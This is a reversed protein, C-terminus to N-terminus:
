MEWKINEKILTAPNGIFLSDENLLKKTITSNAGIIAGKPIESGKLILCRCGIWVNNGIKVPSAQNCIQESSDIIKHFDTDMILIDWSLLCNDGIEIRKEVVISSEATIIFNEGLILEANEGVSIKSGHGINAKGYFEMSGKLFLITRSVKEDFIGVDSFGIKILATEPSCHLLIKGSLNKLYVKNAIIFPLKLAKKFALFKFNFYLTKIISTRYLFRFFEKKDTM